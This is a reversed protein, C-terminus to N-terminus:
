KKRKRRRRWLAFLTIIIVCIIIISTSHIFESTYIITTDPVSLRFIITQPEVGGKRGKDSWVRIKINYDGLVRLKEGLVVDIGITETENLDLELNNQTFILDIGKKYLKASNVVDITFTDLGNGENKIDFNYRVIEGPKAERNTKSSSISFNYFQAIKVKVTNGYPYGVEGFFGAPDMQWDGSFKIVGEDNCSMNHPAKATIRFIKEGPETFIICSPEITSSNWEDEAKLSVNIISAPNYYGQLFSVKVSCNFNVIGFGGPAINATQYRNISKVEVEPYAPNTYSETEASIDPTLLLLCSSIMLLILINLIVNIRVNM